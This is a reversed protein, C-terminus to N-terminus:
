PGMSEIDCHGTQARWRVAVRQGELALIVSFDEALGSSQILITTDNRADADAGVQVSDVVVRGSLRYERAAQAGGFGPSCITVVESGPRFTLAQPRRTVAASEALSELTGALMEAATQLRAAVGAMGLAVVAGASVAAVIVLVALLELLSFGAPPTLHPPGPWLRWRGGGRKPRCAGDAAVRLGGAGECDAAARQSGCEGAARARQRPTPRKM